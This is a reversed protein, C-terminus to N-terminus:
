IEKSNNGFVKNDGSSNRVRICQEKDEIDYIGYINM